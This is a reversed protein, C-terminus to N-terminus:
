PTRIACIPWSCWVPQQEAEFELYAAVAATQEVARVKEDVAQREADAVARKVSKLCVGPDRKLERVRKPSLPLQAPDLILKRPRGGPLKYGLKRLTRQIKRAYTGYRGELQDLTPPCGYQWWMAEFEIDSLLYMKDHNQRALMGLRFALNNGITAM